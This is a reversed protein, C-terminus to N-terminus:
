AVAGALAQDGRDDKPISFPFAKIVDVIYSVQEDTLEAFVPLSLVQKAMREAIPFDGEEWCQDRYAEQLHIPVPYHIVTNVGHDHLHRQLADRQGTRIAYIHYVHDRDPMCTPLVLDGVGRLQGDYEAAVRRRGANWSDLHPLKANLVAAQLTDLRSNEGAVDHFYKKDSGYNRLRMIKRAVTEDNTTIVGADGYAGLNKGPYLSFASADGLSGVRAGKYRAGHAQSADEIVRLNCDRAIELIPDMNAPQGYLHVPIIAKTRPTVAARLKEPDINFTEPEPEVLIPMAGLSSIALVTAIFTNSATIVEDGPEIDLARMALKLADLGSAVGVACRCDCYAAFAEEFKAVDPGLIFSSNEIVAALNQQVADRITEYQARLDLFPIAHMVESKQLETRARVIQM